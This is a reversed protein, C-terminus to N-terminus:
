FQLGWLFQVVNEDTDADGLKNTWYQWEIGIFVRGSYNFLESVYYRFQPQAFFWESVIAGTEDTREGIYEMHGEISFSHSKIKFPYAWNMDFYFSNDEKPVGGSALGNSDDIYFTLDTNLFAFGPVDWSARIGPLYKVVESDLGMNLGALIGIDKLPGIGIKSDLIKSLSFNFYAEGYIDDDNFGDDDADHLFDIFIFNDGYKWGSAHQLTLIHTESDRGGRFPADLNGFQYHLESTSWDFANVMKPNFFAAIIFVSVGILIQLFFKAIYQKGSSKYKM